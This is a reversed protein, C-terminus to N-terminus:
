PVHCCSLTQDQSLASVVEKDMANTNLWLKFFSSNTDYSLVSKVHLQCTTGGISDKSESNEKMHVDMHKMM